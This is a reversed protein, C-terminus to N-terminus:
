VSGIIEINMINCFKRLGERHDGYTMHIHNSRLMKILIRPDNDIHIFAHPSFGWFTEDLKKRPFALCEGSIILMKYRGDVRSLRALTVRGPKAVYQPCMAGIKMKHEKIGHPVWHVDKSSKAFKTPQSGCNSITLIGTKIDLHRVDSFCVVGGTLLHMIQMTLAGNSDSECGCVVIKDQGDADIGDNLIAHAFCFSTFYILMEPLCRLSLFDLKSDKIIKKLVLYLKISNSLVEYKIDVKGFENKIWKLYSQIEEDKLSKAREIVELQDFGVTEIGFKKRWENPDVVATYMGMSRTGFIGYTQGRLKTVVSKVLCELRLEDLAEKNNFDGYVLPADVGIEDLSGKAISAGILGGTDKRENTWIIAPLKVADVAAVIASAFIWSTVYFVLVQAGKYALEKAQTQAQIHSRTIVGPDIVELKLTKLTLRAKKLFDGAAEIGEKPWGKSPSLMCMLGVKCSVKNGM